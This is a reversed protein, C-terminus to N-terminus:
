DEVSVRNGEERDRESRELELRRKAVGDMVWEEARRLRYRLTTLPIDLSDAVEELTAGRPTEYYGKGYATELAQRQEYPLEKVSPVLGLWRDPAGIREVDVSVSDPLGDDLHERFGSMREDDPALIRHREVPGRRVADFVLGEGAHSLALFAVSHCYSVNASYRYVTRAEPASELVQYEFEGDCAPHPITCDNCVEPDLYVEELADLAAEPGTLRVIRWGCNLSSSIDLSRAVMDPHRIFIDNVPHVGSEYGLRFVYERM